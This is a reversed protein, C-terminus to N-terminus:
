TLRAVAERKVPDMVTVYRRILQSLDGHDMLEAITNPHVNAEALWSAFTYRFLHPHARV